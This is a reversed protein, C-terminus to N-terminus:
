YSIQFRAIIVDEHGRTGSGFEVDDNFETHEWNTQVKFNRNLYWNIGATYALAGSTSEGYAAFGDDFAGSDVHVGSIRGAVEFAGWRGNRPDFANIPVVTKYSADEGTLVYSAQAFWGQSELTGDTSGASGTQRVDSWSNTWEGMVGLPGWYWYAQPAIRSRDGDESISGGSPVELSFFTSRGATRYQLGSISETAQGFSGSLGVGLGKLAATTGGRFPEVWLRGQFDKGSNPDIDNSGGDINGNSYALQYNFAGDLVDGFLMVGVDRNPPINNGISREIFTLDAGSQLRELSIPAKFKGAQFQAYPFYKVTLYADQLSTSGGGFDPMIRFDFWKYVTGEFIPRVRRLLFTDKGTDGSPFPFARADAQVYGRLKLKFDGGPSQLFFGDQWGALVKQKKLKDDVIAEVAPADIAGTEAPQDVASPAKGEGEYLELRKELARVREELTTRTARSSHPPPDEATSARPLSILLGALALGTAVSTPFRRITM